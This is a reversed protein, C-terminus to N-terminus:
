GLFRQLIDRLANFELPKSVYADVLFDKYAETKYKSQTYLSTMIVVKTRATEADSKILKCMERGDMRPMLADTLILDPHYRKALEIGEIGNSAVIIGYGLGTIARTALRRIEKEDDVLLVLPRTAEEPDPNRFQKQDLRHDELERDWLTQPAASWFQIKYATPAKCFCSLCSPCVLSHQTVLCNCWVSQLADFQAKCNYCRVEYRNPLPEAPIAEMKQEKSSSPEM